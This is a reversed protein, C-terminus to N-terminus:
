HFIRVYACSPIIIAGAIGAYTTIPTDMGLMKLAAAAAVFGAPISVLIVAAGILRKPISYM